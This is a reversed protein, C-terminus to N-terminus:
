LKYANDYIEKKDKENLTKDIIIAIAFVIFFNVIFRIMTFKWGMYSVEFLLLPIRISASSCIFILVNSIKSGKKLLMGAIPLLAYLPVATVVGLAFSILVGKSKSNEGMLKIMAKRDIWVDMLGICIFVPTLMFLFNMFNKVTFEFSKIGTQPFLVLAALNLCLVIILFINKKFIKM